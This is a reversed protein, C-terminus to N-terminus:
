HRRGCCSEKVPGVPTPDQDPCKIDEDIYFVLNNTDVGLHMRASVELAEFAEAFQATPGGIPTLRQKNMSLVLYKKQGATVTSTMAVAQLAKIAAADGSDIVNVFSEPEINTIIVLRNTGGSMFEHVDTPSVMDERVVGRLRHTCSRSLQQLVQMSDNSTLLCSPCSPCKGDTMTKSGCQSCLDCVTYKEYVFFYLFVIAAAVAMIILINNDM